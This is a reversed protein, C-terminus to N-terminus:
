SLREQAEGYAAFDGARLAADADAQADQAESIAAALQDVPPQTPADGGGTPPDTGPAVTEPDSTGDTPVTVQFLEEIGEALTPTFVIRDGYSLLVRRLLPFAEGGAARTYVPQVYLVGDAVPITLLNGVVVQSGQQDLLTLVQAVEQDSRFAGYATGPGDVATRSPLEYIRMAGYDDPESSVAVFATLNPRQQAVFSTTLHFAADDTGPVRIFQYFPPQDPGRGQGDAEAPDAPVRWFDEQVFFARADTEHYSALVDRQVKFLDEPYRFHARLEDSIEAAPRVVDPFAKSWTRLVPDNEDFAYLVVDGTYADVTAKVSNRIYNVPAPPQVARNAAAPGGVTTADATAEGLVRLSSYPYGSSTTYGDVIWLIRGDVVAPYPDGDLELFPAVKAVRDRPERVYMIRSDDNIAGSLLLNRERYKLAYLTKRFLNSMQVGGDGEYRSTAEEEAGPAAPGDIEAQDTNVVSYEPSQEGFYIRSEEIPLDLGQAVVPPVNGVAFAPRGNEDVANAPAAVFGNGHTYILHENIWGRQNPALGALNVERAAVVYDQPGNGLDYRDIDLTEAFGFYNRIQEFQRYTPSLLNPDLLRANPLTTEAEERTVQADEIQTEGAYPLVEAKDLRYAARTAEISREIYRAELDIANPEVRFQQLGAPWVGGIVVAAVVLAGLSFLPLTFNRFRINAFFLLACIVAIGALITKAPLVANVDTYAPGTIRENQVFALGYRDLWYAAAKLLVFVGALVSIHARAAPVLREGPTQLRLGGFLYHTALAALLSLVVATFLFGLVFRYFPYDFAFFSVDMDFQPDRVGFPTGNRWLLWTEWRSAASIGTLVGVVSTVVLLVPVLHPEVALRYRELNQQELSLPRFVPRLKYAITINAGVLLAMAAGFLVFLLVRTGLVTTFVQEVGVERFWLLDTYLGVALALLGVLVGLVALVPVLLRPRQPLPPAPPRNAM